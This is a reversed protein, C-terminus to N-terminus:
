KENLKKLKQKRIFKEGEIVTYRNIDVDYRAFTLSNDDFHGLVIYCYDLHLCNQSKNKTSRWTWGKEFLIKQISYGQEIDSLKIATKM